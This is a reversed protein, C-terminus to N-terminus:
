KGPHGAIQSWQAAPQESIWRRETVGRKQLPNSVPLRLPSNRTNENPGCRAPQFLPLPRAPPRRRGRPGAARLAESGQTGGHALFEKLATLAPRVAEDQPVALHAAVALRVAAHIESPSMGLDNALVNFTWREPGLAVLKLLVLVDQPKLVM